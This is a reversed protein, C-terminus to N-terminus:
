RFRGRWPTLWAGARCWSGSCTEPENTDIVADPRTVRIAYQPAPKPTITNLTTMM